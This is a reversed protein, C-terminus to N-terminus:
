FASKAYYAEARELLKPQIQPYTWREPLAGMCYVGVMEMDPLDGFTEIEAVYLMGFTEEGDRCVSYACVPALTYSLAGTEEFLERKATFLINEGPERHGGPIEYTDRQKHMCFVWKGAHRAAIVAFKLLEDPVAEHFAVHM